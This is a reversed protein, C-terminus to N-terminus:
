VISPAELGLEHKLNLIFSELFNLREKYLGKGAETKLYRYRKKNSKYSYLLRDYVIKYRQNKKSGTDMSDWLVTLAGTEDLLDADIIIRQELVLENVSLEKSSHFRIVDTVSNIFDTDFDRDLLYNKCIKAGEEAHNIGDNIAKGVDHFIAATTIVKENGKEINNIREAWKCMRLTHEYRNRFPFEKDLQTANINTEELHKKVFKLMDEYM